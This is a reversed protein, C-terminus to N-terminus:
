GVMVMVVGVLSREVSEGINGGRQKPSSPTSRSEMEPAGSGPEEPREVGQETEEEVSSSSSPHASMSTSGADAMARAAQSFRGGEGGRGGLVAM